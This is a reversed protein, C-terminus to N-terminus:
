CVVAVTTDFPDYGRDPVALFRAHEGCYHGRYPDDDPDPDDAELYAAVAEDYAFALTVTATRQCPIQIPEPAFEPYMDDHSEIFECTTTM